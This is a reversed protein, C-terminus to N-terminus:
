KDCITYVYMYIYIYIYINEEIQVTVYQLKCLLHSDSRRFELPLITCILRQFNGNIKCTATTQEDKVPDNLLNDVRCSEHKISKCHMLTHHCHKHM